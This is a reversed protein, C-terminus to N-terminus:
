SAVPDSPSIPPLEPLTVSTIPVQADKENVSEKEIFAKMGEEAQNILEAGVALMTMLKTTKAAEKHHPRNEEEWRMIDKQCEPCCIGHIDKAYTNENEGSKIFDVRKWGNKVVVESFHEM